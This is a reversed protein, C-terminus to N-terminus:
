NAAFNDFQEHLTELNNRSSTLSSKLLEKKTRTIIDTELSILLSIQYTFERAFVRDLLGNLRAAELNDNLEGIIASEETATSEKNPTDPNKAEFDNTLTSSLAYNTELLVSKLSMAMSRLESSRIKTRNDDIVKSLDKTRLYAEDVYDRESNKNGSGAIMAVFLVLIVALVAIGIIKLQKMSLNLKDGFFGPAKKALPRTESAIKDLYDKNNMNM